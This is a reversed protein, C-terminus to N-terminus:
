RKSLKGSKHETDTLVAFIDQLLGLYFTQFFSNSLSRDALKSFNDILELCIELGTDQIERHTHKFAWIISDLILKLQASPMVLFAAFLSYRM